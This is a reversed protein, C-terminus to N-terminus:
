SKPKQPLTLTPTEQHPKTRTSWYERFAKLLQEIDTATIAGMTAIRFMEGALKGQGAYIVFGAQKLHNHLSSYDSGGPIRYATLLSSAPERIDLLPEISQGRLGDFLRQTLERYQARRSRWGGADVLEELAENLAFYLSVAPTFPTANRNQETYQRFLDLYVSTAGTKRKSFCTKRALVFSVGPVGHLCKYSTGACAALGWNEFDIEEGGFSSVCDLLLSVDHRRCIDGLRSIDNLRGTTTELHVALVHTIEPTNTLTEEAAAFDISDIWDARVVHATKNQADLMTAMREGYVGNSLVLAHGEHPVLSGVMAEVASTGSGSILIATYDSAAQPYVTLLRARLEGMLASFEPERHCVDERLLAERVRRTLTVPGPSLLKM